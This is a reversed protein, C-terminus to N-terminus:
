EMYSNLIMKFILVRVNNEALTYHCTLSSHDLFGFGQVFFFLCPGQTVDCLADVVGEVEPPARVSVSCDEGDFGTDCVCSGVCLFCCEYNIYRVKFLPSHLYFRSQIDHAYLCLPCIYSISWISLNKWFLKHFSEKLTNPHMCKKFSKSWCQFWVQPIEHTQLQFVRSSKLVYCCEGNICQGQKNCDGPCIVEIVEPLEPVGGEDVKWLTVDTEIVSLCQEQLAELATTLWDM